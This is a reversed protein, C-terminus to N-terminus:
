TLAFHSHESPNSEFEFWLFCSPDAEQWMPKAIALRSKEHNFVAAANQTYEGPPFATAVCRFQVLEFNCCLPIISAWFQLSQIWLSPM